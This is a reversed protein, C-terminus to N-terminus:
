FLDGKSKEKNNLLHVLNAERTKSTFFEPRAVAKLLTRKLSDDKVEKLIRQRASFLFELYEEYSEDFQQALQSRIQSALIPSAGGTSIAISLRGRKLHAPVHFDSGDPDDAITVLQHPEAASKVDQNITQDNTAAFILFSGKLDDRSFTKQLWTIKGVEALGKLVETVKPSVVFVLAGTELLGNVKREAVRGGGVVVIKKGELRLMVPYM